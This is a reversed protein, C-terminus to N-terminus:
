KWYDPISDYDSLGTANYYMDGVQTDTANPWKNYIYMGNITASKGTLSNCDAFMRSLTGNGLNGGLTDFLGEPIHELNYCGEFMSYFMYDTSISTIGEFLTAPIERLSENYMFSGTFRPQSGDALTPFVRGLRGYLKEISWYDSMTIAPIAPIWNGPFITTEYATAVGGIKVIYKGMTDYRHSVIYESLNNRTINEVTGDGWDIVFNGQVSLLFNFENTGDVLEIAFPYEPSTVGDDYIDETPDDPNSPTVRILETVATDTAITDAAVMTAFECNGYDTTKNKNLIENAVDITTLLYKMNAVVQPNTLETNYPISINWKQQISNHIYEVNVVQAAQAVFIFWFGFLIAFLNKMM